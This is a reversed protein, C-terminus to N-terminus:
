ALHAGLYKIPDAAIVMQQLHYKYGGFAVTDMRTFSTNITNEVPLYQNPMTEGWLAKAFDHSFIIDKVGITPYQNFAEDAVVHFTVSHGDYVSMIEYEHGNVTWGQDIAKQIAKELIETDSM